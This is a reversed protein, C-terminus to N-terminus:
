KVGMDALHARADKQTDPYQAAKKLMEICGKTDGTEDLAGALLLYPRGSNFTNGGAELEAVAAKFETVADRPRDLDSIYLLGLALHSQLKNLILDRSNKLAAESKAYLERAKAEDGSARAARALDRLEVGLGYWGPVYTQAMQVSRLFHEAARAKMALKRAPDREAEAERSLNQGLFDRLVPGDWGSDFEHQLLTLDSKWRATQQWTLAGLLLALGAVVVGAQKARRVGWETLAGVGLMVLPMIAVYSYRDAVLQPGSQLFGLVPGILVGYAALAAILAPRKRWWAIALGGVALVIAWPVIWRARAPSFDTPLEYMPGLGVPLLTKWVYFVLGYGAQCIRATVSWQELTRMTYAASAQARGAVMATAVGIVVLPWKEILVGRSARGLWKWPERALRGFPYWDMVLAVVFFTMGWAKCLVSILLLGITLGYWKGDLPAPRGDVPVDAEARGAGSGSAGRTAREYALAAGLLFAVSLVDRRETIWAVSEVRLPHLGWLLAVVLGAWAATAGAWAPRARGFLVAALWWVLLTDIAHLVVNTVHFVREDDGAIAHDLAYSLYTLPEYHGARFTTFMWAINAPFPRLWGKDEILVTLDDLNSLGHGFAPAFAAGVCLVVGLALLGWMWRSNRFEPAAM